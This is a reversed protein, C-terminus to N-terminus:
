DFMAMEVVPFAERETKATADLWRMPLTGIDHGDM